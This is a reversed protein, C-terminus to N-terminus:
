REPFFVDFKHCLVNLFIEESLNSTMCNWWSSFRFKAESATCDPVFVFFVKFFQFFESSGFFSSANFVIFSTKFLTNWYLVFFNKDQSFASLLVQGSVM